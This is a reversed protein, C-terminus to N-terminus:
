TDVILILYDDWIDTIFDFDVEDSDLSSLDHLFCDWFSVLSIELVSDVQHIVELLSNLWKVGLFLLLELIDLCIDLLTELEGIIFMGIFLVGSM